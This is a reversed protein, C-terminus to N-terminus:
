PRARDAERIQSVIQDVKSAQHFDPEVQAGTLVGNIFTFLADLFDEFSGGFDLM